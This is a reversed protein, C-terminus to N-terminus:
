VKGVFGTVDVSHAIAASTTLTLATNATLKKPTQFHISMGRGAVAELYYPGLVTTTSEEFFLNIATAAGSSFVIDTVYLCLSADGTAAHVQADTQASSTNLHYSWIQPGHPHAFVAGDWDTALTTADSEADVRNPPATDDMNQASGCVRVPNGAAAASHAVDGVVENTNTGAALTVNPLTIVDVQMETGSVAGAITTTDVEIADLVANDTASLNATVTGDVTLSSANDDISVVGTSDTALTVRLAAAETGAGIPPVTGAWDVSINNGSDNIGVEDWTGSQTVAVTGTITTSALTVDNNAGLNVLLGDTASGPILEGGGSASGVLGVVARTDTGAGTDLDATTLETDVAGTISVSGDVTISNGSDNIGVEDWTGSQTVAVTGTITTSALTVDNNAGLNVLLGDTASGPILAGGGSASGVLGVVARTDTGAGTDLDATTLESDVLLTGAVSAAIADLVANDTAGLNVDGIVTGTVLKANITDLVADITDLVANDTDSLAIPLPNTATSTVLNAADLAGFALKSIPYHVGGVDDTAFTAGGAGADAIVNDAM